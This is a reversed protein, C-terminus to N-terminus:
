KAIPKKKAIRLKKETFFRKRAAARADKGNNGYVLGILKGSSDFVEYMVLVGKQILNKTEKGKM